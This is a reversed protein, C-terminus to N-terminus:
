RLDRPVLHLTAASSPAVHCFIHLYPPLILSSLQITWLMGGYQPVYSHLCDNMGGLASCTQLYPSYCWLGWSKWGGLKSTSILRYQIVKGWFYVLSSNLLTYKVGPISAIILFLSLWMEWIPWFTDAGDLKSQLVLPNTVLTLKATEFQTWQTWIIILPSPGPFMHHMMPM